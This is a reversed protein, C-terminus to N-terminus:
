YAPDSPLRRIRSLRLIAAHAAGRWGTQLENRRLSILAGLAELRIREAAHRPHLLSHFFM